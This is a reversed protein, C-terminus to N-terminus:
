EKYLKFKSAIESLGVLGYSNIVVYGEVSYQLWLNGNQDYHVNTVNHTDIIQNFQNKLNTVIKKMVVPTSGQADFTAHVNFSGGADTVAFGGGNADMDSIKYGETGPMTSVLTWDFKKTDTKM